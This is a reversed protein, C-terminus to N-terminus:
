NGSANPAGLALPRRPICTHRWARNRASTRPHQPLKPAGSRRTPLAPATSRGAPARLADLALQRRAQLRVRCARRAGAGKLQGGLYFGSMNEVIGLIDVNVQRFMAIAKGVDYTSVAQPTTVLVAGTLPVIQALSLQADGTGPPMDVLLYDLQGWEVDGLFQEILKHV